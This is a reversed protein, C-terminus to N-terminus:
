KIEATLNRRAGLGITIGLKLYSNRNGGEQNVVLSAYHERLTPTKPLTEVELL